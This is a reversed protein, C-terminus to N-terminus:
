FGTITIELTDPYAKFVIGRTTLGAVTDLFCEFTTCIIM